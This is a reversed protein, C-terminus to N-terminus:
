HNGQINKNGDTSDKPNIISQQERLSFYKEMYEEKLSLLEASHKNEIQMIERARLVESHKFGIGYAVGAVAAFAAIAKGYRQIFDTTSKILSVKKKNKASM